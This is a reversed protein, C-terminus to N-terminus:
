FVIKIKCFKTVQTVQTANLFAACTVLHERKYEKKTLNEYVTKHLTKNM